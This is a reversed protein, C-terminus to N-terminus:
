SSREAGLLETLAQLDLMILALRETAEDHGTLTPGLMQLVATIHKLQQLAYANSRSSPSSTSMNATLEVIQQRVDDLRLGHAALTARAVPADARLLGLLLHEPGIHRHNLRDAEEAAFGLVLKTEASFPIELSKPLKERGAARDRFDKRIDALPLRGLIRGGPGRPERLLGLLLHETEISRSGLESAEYRSFFLVRRAPEDYREFM